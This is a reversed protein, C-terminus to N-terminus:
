GKMYEYGNNELWQRALKFTKHWICAMGAVIVDYGDVGYRGFRPQILAYKKM